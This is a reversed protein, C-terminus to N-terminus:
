KLSHVCVSAYDCYKCAVNEKKFYAPRIAIDGAKLSGCIETLRERFTKRFQEMDEESILGAYGSRASGAKFVTTSVKEPDTINRDIATLIEPNKVALGDLAYSEALQDALSATIEDAAMQAFDLEREPERIAYYFVGAPKLSEDSGLAGELYVMLQLDLGAEAKEKSFSKNGSKYDIIKVYRRDGSAILDVRDIQGEIRVRGLATDVVVPPFFRKEGFGTEFYMASVRGKRIQEAMYKAFSCCVTYIRGTKYLQQSDSSMVGDLFNEKKSEFIELILARIEEDTLTMWPSAPDTAEIKKESCIDMLRQSFELLVQHYITGAERGTIEFPNLEEPRLGHNVFHKFPCSAYQELQTPSYYDSGPKAFLADALEPGISRGEPAFFIGEASAQLAPDDKMVNYAEKWLETVNEGLYLAKLKEPLLTRLADRSQILKDEPGALADAEVPIEPHQALLEEILSSPRLADGNADSACWCLVLQKCDTDLTREIQFLEEEQLVQSNKILTFGKEELEAAERETILCDAALDGPLIGDNVGALYLVKVDKFSSRSVTGIQVKGEAQPLVGVKAEAFCSSLISAYEAAAVPEAGLLEVMQDMLSVIVNWSQLEEQAADLYGAAELNASLQKLVGPLELTEALFRYLAATKELVTEAATFEACFPGFLEALRCRIAELREFKEPELRDAGYRFPKLFAKEYIKYQKIYNEFDFFDEPAFERLVGSKCFALVDQRRFGFAGINLAAEAAAAAATHQMSRKEDMFVPIGLSELVRKLSRGMGETDQTLIVADGYGLGDDRVKELIDLGITLSQTYPSACSIMRLPKAAPAKGDEGAEEAGAKEGGAAAPGGSLVVRTLGLSQLKEATKAGVTYRDEGALLAANLDAASAKLAEMFSLENKTFSYFDSFWIVSERIYRSRSVMEATYKILEESDTYKGAMLRQYESYILQLDALKDALLSGEAATESLAALGAPDIGNQKMQVIMDGALDLFGPERSVSAFSKMEAARDKVIKRLLMSRGLTNIATKEPAGTEQLIITRLKAGSMVHFDFFGEGGLAAFSEEETKLTAQAPVVLIVRKPGGFPTEAAEATKQPAAFIGPVAEAGSTSRIEALQRQIRNYMERRLEAERSACLIVSM